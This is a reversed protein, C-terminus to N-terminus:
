RGADTSGSVRFASTGPASRGLRMARPLLSALAPAHEADVVVRAHRRSADDAVIHASRVPVDGFASILMRLLEDSRRTPAAAGICYTILERALSDPMRLTAM